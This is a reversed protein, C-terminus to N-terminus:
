VVDQPRSGATSSTLTAATAPETEGEVDAVGQEHPLFEVISIDCANFLHLGPHEDGGEGGLWQVRELCVHGREQQPSFGRIAGM